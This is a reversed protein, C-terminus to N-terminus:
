NTKGHIKNGFWHSAVRLWIALQWTIFSFLCIWPFIWGRETYFTQKKIMEVRGVVTGVKLNGLSEHINGHPDIIKSTGSSAACVVWRYNEAARICFITSHQDHQIVSWWKSDHTPAAILEAGNMVIKRVVSPYDNDFCIPTGIIGLSTKQTNFKQGPVGDNFFHVPRNKYYEGILGTPGLTLATNYWDSKGDGFITKTGVVFICNLEKALRILKELDEEKKTDDRIDYPIAYEPWVILQPKLHSNTHSLKYYDHFISSESQVAAVNVTNQQPAIVPLDIIGLLLILTCLAGGIVRTRKFVILTSSFIVIFSTGYVGVFPSLWTPGLAIGPTIWTFRLWFIESRFFEIATWCVAAFLAKLIPSRIKKNTMNLLLCFIGTFLSLIAHLVFAGSQFINTFWYLSSGYAIMGQLFGCYFASRETTNTAIILLPIWAVTACPWWGLPPFSLYVLLGSLITLMLNKIIKKMVPQREFFVNKGLACLVM